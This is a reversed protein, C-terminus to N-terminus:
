RPLASFDVSAISELVAARIARADELPIGHMELKGGAIGFKVDAYGRRHAIPGQAIEVSQLKVRSAIDIRPALWGRRVHIHRGDIAHRDYRWLFRERLAFFGALALLALPVLAGVGPAAPLAPIFLASLLAALGLPIAGLLARDLRYRPSPRRWAASGDPLAFGTAAVVPAIEEIRAFPAVVRSAAKSDQALSVAALGHWGFRRRVIATTLQLAQVRHVPMVVDTRTLLGRRRRLGKPTEELRFGYDRLVTRVVGTALGISALAALAVAAGFVQAALGLQTLRSGPGALVGAWEEFDWFEFPLLFDFQQAAGGLVAFIVLSFEFLGFTLLRRTDMAFLPRSEEGSTEAGDAQEGAVVLEGAKRVRVAERLADGEAETVYALKLEDKGGAGTEFTVQVMGFLRPVLAQEVSVDQIREYPVTRASRSLLGRELRIDNEGLRYRLHRWQLYSIAVIVAVGLALGLPVFLWAQDWDRSTFVAALAPLALNRLAMIAQVVFGLPNIRRWGGPAEAVAESV